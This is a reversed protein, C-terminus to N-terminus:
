SGTSGRSRWPQHDQRPAAPHGPVASGPRGQGLRRGFDGEVVYIESKAPDTSQCTPGAQGPLSTSDLLSKRRTLDRAQRAAIRARAAQSAKNIIEKARARTEPDFWDRLHDNCAKQV